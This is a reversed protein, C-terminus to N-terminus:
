VVVVTDVKAEVAMVTMGLKRLHNIVEPNDEHFCLEEQDCGFLVCFDQVAHAVDIETKNSFRIARYDTVMHHRLLMRIREPNAATWLVCRESGYTTLVRVVSPNLHSLELHSEVYAQKLTSIHILDYESLQLYWDQIIDRTIRPVVKRPELAVCALAHVYGATNLEDTFVLTNDVDVIHFM